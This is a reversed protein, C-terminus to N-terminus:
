AGYTNKFAKELKAIALKTEERSGFRIVDYGDLYQLVIFLNNENYHIINKINVCRDEIYVLEPELDTLALLKQM